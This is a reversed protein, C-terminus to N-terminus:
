SLEDHQEEDNDDRQEEDNDDCLVGEKRKELTTGGQPM